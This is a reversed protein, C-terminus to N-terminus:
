GFCQEGIELIAVYTQGMTSFDELVARLFFIAYQADKQNGKERFQHDSAMFNKYGEFISERLFEIRTIRQHVAHYFRSIIEAQRSSMNRFVSDKHKTWAEFSKAGSYSLDQNLFLELQHGMSLVFNDEELGDIADVFKGCAGLMEFAYNIKEVIDAAIEASTGKIQSIVNKKQRAVDLRKQVLKGITVVFAEFVAVTAGGDATQLWKVDTSAHFASMSDPNSILAYRSFNVPNRFPGSVPEDIFAIDRLDPAIKKRFLGM